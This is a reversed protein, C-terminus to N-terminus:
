APGTARRATLWAVLGDLALRYSEGGFGAVVGICAPATLSRRRFREARAAPHSLHVEVCPLAAARLADYLAVSTHTYAAPNFLIGDFRGPAEGIATVLEGECNSQRFEIEVELERARAELRRQIDALTERGYLEPERRGLLNLNPGNLVLIKM